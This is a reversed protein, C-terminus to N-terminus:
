GTKKKSGPAKTRALLPIREGRASSAIVVDLRRERTPEQKASLVWFTATRRYGPPQASWFRWARADSRLRRKMAPPFDTPKSEFSYIGRASRRAEFASRGPAAMRGEADLERARKINVASWVSRPKRPSFRVSFSDEDLSRRVGDIWGWCLAEDVAQPYTMGRDAAHVKFCRILLEGERDHHRELWARFAAVGPFGRAPATM